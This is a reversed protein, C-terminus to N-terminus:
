TPIKFDGNYLIKNSPTSRQAFVLAGPHREMFLLVTAAVTALIKKSDRNNSVVLDDVKNEKENFDGFGLNYIDDGSDTIIIKNFQVIKKIRGHPGESFFEFALFDPKTDLAYQSLNM